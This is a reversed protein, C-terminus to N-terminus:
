IMHLDTQVVWVSLGDRIFAILVFFILNTWLEFARTERSVDYKERRDFLDYDKLKM